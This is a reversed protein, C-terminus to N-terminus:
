CVRPPHAQGLGLCWFWAQRGAADCVLNHPLLCTCALAAWCGGCNSQVAVLHVRQSLM